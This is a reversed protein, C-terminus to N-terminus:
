AQHNIPKGRFLRIASSILEIHQLTGTWWRLVPM